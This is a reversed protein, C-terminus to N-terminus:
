VRDQFKPKYNWQKEKNDLRINTDTFMLFIVIYVM